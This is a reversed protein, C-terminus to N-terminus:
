LVGSVCVCLVHTMGSCHTTRGTGTCDCTFGGTNPVCQGRRCPATRCLDLASECIVGTYGAFVCVCICFCVFVSVSVCVILIVPVFVSVFKCSRSM